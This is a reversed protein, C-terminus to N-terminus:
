PISYSTLVITTDLGDGASISQVWGIGPAYWSDTTFVIPAVPVSIGQTVVTITSMYQCTVKMADFTGAPVSVSEVGSASCSISTDNTADATMGSATVTGAISVTQAWLTGAEVVAPLTMGSQATTQFNADMTTTQVSASTGSVPDLSTLNGADCNWIGTRITGASFTDQDTFGSDTVEVISRTFTDNTTGTMDYTWQAGAVVPYLPNACPGTLAPEVPTATGSPACSALLFALISLALPRVFTNNKYM